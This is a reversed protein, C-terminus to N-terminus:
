VKFGIYTASPLAVNQNSSELQVHIFTAGVSKLDAVSENRHTIVSWESDIQPLRDSLM